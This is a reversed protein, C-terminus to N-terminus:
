PAPLPAVHANQWRVPMRAPEPRHSCHAVLPGKTGDPAAWFATLAALSSQGVWVLEEQIVQGPMKSMAQELMEWAAGAPMGWEAGAPEELLAQEPM